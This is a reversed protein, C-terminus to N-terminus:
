EKTIITFLPLLVKKAKDQGVIYQDLHNKLGRPTTKESNHNKKNEEELVYDQILTKSEILCSYCIVVDEQILTFHEYEKGKNFKAADEKLKASDRNCLICVYKGM